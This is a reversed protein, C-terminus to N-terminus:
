LGKQEWLQTDPLLAWSSQPSPADQGDRLVFDNHLAHHITLQLGPSKPLFWLKIWIKPSSPVRLTYSCIRLHADTRQPPPLRQFPRPTGVTGQAVRRPQSYFADYWLVFFWWICGHISLTSVTRCPCSLQYTRCRSILFFWYFCNKHFYNQTRVCLSWIRNKIWRYLTSTQLNVQVRACRSVPFNRPM